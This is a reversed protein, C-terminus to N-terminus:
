DIIREREAMFQTVNVHCVRKLYEQNNNVRLISVVTESETWFAFGHIQRFM